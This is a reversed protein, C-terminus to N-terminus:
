ENYWKMINKLKKRPRKQPYENQYGIALACNLEMDKVNFMKEIIDAVYVTDRIWLTGLGLEVARLCMNEICAGISLNDGIIWNDNKERFVLVLIPAQKIIDATNKVSSDHGIKKRELKDDNNLTYNIMIDAINNKLSNEVVIFNWPQRNKASPALTGSYLLKLILKKSVKKNKFKRISRRKEIADLVKM